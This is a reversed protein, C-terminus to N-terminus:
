VKIFPIDNTMDNKIWVFTLHGTDKDMQFNLHVM